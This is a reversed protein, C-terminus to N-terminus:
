VVRGGLLLHLGAIIAFSNILQCSHMVFWLAPSDCDPLWLWFVLHCKVLERVAAGAWLLVPQPSTLDPTM